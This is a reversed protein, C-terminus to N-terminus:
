FYKFTKGKPMYNRNYWSYFNAYANNYMVMSNAYKGYEKNAYDIQVELWKVYIDDYPAPVLLVTDLPTEENYGQFMIDNRTAEIYEKAEEYSVENTKMYDAIAQEKDAGEHTDIIERKVIGDLTSLWKIKDEQSYTNPKLADIQNIVEIITM